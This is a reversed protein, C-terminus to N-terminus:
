AVERDPESGLQALRRGVLDWATISARRIELTLSKAEEQDSAKAVQELRDALHQLRRAGFNGSVGKLDHAERALGIMDGSAACAEIRQLRNQAAALFGEIIARFRVVPMLKMLGDLHADDLDAVEIAPKPAADDSRRGHEGVFRHVANLFDDPDLPKSVFDNMGAALCTDQDSRMANATLAVIPVSAAPGSLARIERTAQLGDMVPMQVDMLVLDFAGRRAAEVAEAGNVVAEVSFGAEELITTALLANIENDEALLIRGGVPPALTEPAPESAAPAQLKAPAESILESLCDILAQQRVPKTLYADFGVSHAHDSPAPAGISSALILRPQKLSGNARIKEAVTDGGMGPMMHDMLVMDFPEGM